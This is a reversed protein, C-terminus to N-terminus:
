LSQRFILSLHSSCLDQLGRMSGIVSASNPSNRIDHKANGTAHGTDTVLQLVDVVLNRRDHITHLVDKM